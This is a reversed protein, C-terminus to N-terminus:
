SEIHNQEAVNTCDRHLMQSVSVVAQWGLSEQQGVAAQGIIAGLRKVSQDLM